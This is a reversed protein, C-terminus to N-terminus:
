DKCDVRIVKDWHGSKEQKLAELVHPNKRWFGVFVIVRKGGRGYERQGLDTVMYHKIQKVVVVVNQATQQPSSYDLSGTADM